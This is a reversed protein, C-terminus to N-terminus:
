EPNSEEPVSPSSETNSIDEENRSNIKNLYDFYEKNGRIIAAIKELFETETIATAIIFVSAFYVFGNNSFLALTGIFSIVSVKISHLQISKKFSCFFSVVACVSFIGAIVHILSVPLNLFKEM